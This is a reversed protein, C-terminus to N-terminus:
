YTFGQIYSVTNRPGTVRSTIRYLPIKGGQRGNALTENKVNKSSTDSQSDSFLCNADSLAQNATRCMRQIIYRVSNGSADKGADGSKATAWNADASLDLAPDANTYYGSAPADTNFPHNDTAKWPDKGQNAADTTALWRNAAEFGGDGSSTAAQKLALNGAVLTGTDVSRILAVAALMLTVLAILAIFLVIGRQKNGSHTRIGYQLSAAFRTNMM